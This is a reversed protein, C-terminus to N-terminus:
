VLHYNGLHRLRSSLFPRDSVRRAAHEIVPGSCTTSGMQFPEM